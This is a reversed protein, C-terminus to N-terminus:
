EAPAREGASWSNDRFPDIPRFGGYYAEIETEYAPDDFGVRQVLYAEPARARVENLVQAVRITEPLLSGTLEPREEMIVTIAALMRCIALILLKATPLFDPSNEGFFPKSRQSSGILRATKPVLMNGYWNLVMCAQSFPTDSREFTPLWPRSETRARGLLALSINMALENVESDECTSPGPFQQNLHYGHETLSYGHALMIRELRPWYDKFAGSVYEFAAPFHPTYQDGFEASLEATTCRNSFLCRECWQFCYNYVSPIKM